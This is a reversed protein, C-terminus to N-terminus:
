THKLGQIGGSSQQIVGGEFAKCIIQSSSLETRPSTCFTRPSCLLSGKGFVNDYLHPILQTRFLYRQKASLHCSSHWISFCHVCTGPMSSFILDSKNSANGTTEESKTLTQSALVTLGSIFWMTFLTTNQLLSSQSKGAPMVRDCFTTLLAASSQM